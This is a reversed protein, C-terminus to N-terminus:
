KYMKGSLAIVSTQFPAVGKHLALRTDESFLRKRVSDLLLAACGSGVMSTTEVVKVNKRPQELGLDELRGVQIRELLHPKQMSSLESKYHKGRETSFHGSKAKTLILSSLSINDEAGVQLQYHPQDEFTWSIRASPYDTTADARVVQMSWPNFLYRKWFKRRSRLFDHYVYKWQDELFFSLMRRPADSESVSFADIVQRRDFKRELFLYHNVKLTM